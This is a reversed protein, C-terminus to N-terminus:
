QSRERARSCCSRLPLTITLLKINPINPVNVDGISPVSLLRSTALLSRHREILSYEQSADSGETHGRDRLKVSIIFFTDVTMSFADSTASLLEATSKFM